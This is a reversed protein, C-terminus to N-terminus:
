QCNHFDVSREKKFTEKARTGKKFRDLDQSLLINVSSRLFPLWSQHMTNFTYQLIPKPTRGFSQEEM